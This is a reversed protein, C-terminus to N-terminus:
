QRIWGSVYEVKFRAGSGLYSQRSQNSKRGTECSDGDEVRPLQQENPGPISYGGLRSSGGRGREHNLALFEVADGFTV